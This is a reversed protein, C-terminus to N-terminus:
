GHPGSWETGIEGTNASNRFGIRKHPPGLTMLTRIALFVEQIAADHNEYQKQLADIRATMDKQTTALERLNVFARM